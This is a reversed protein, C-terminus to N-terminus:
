ATPSAATTRPDGAVPDLRVAQDFDAIARDLDGKSRYALGLNNFAHANKPELQLVQGFDAIARDYDGSTASPSAATTFRWRM